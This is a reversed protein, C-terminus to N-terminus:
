DALRNLELQAFSRAAADRLQRARAADSGCDPGVPAASSGAHRGGDRAAQVNRRLQGGWAGPVLACYADPLKWARAVTQPCM